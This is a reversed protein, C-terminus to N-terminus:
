PSSSLDEDNFFLNKSIFYAGVSLILLGGIFLTRKDHDDRSRRAMLIGIIALFQRHYGQQRPPVRRDADPDKRGIPSRRSFRRGIRDTRRDKRGSRIGTRGPSPDAALTEPLHHSAAESASAWRRKELFILHGAM